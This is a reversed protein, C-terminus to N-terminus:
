YCTSMSTEASGPVGGDLSGLGGPGLCLGPRASDWHPLWPVHRRINARVRVPRVLLGPDQSGGGEPSLDEWWCETDQKPSIREDASLQGQKHCLRWGQCFHPDVRNSLNREERLVWLHFVHVRWPTARRHRGTSFVTHPERQNKCSKLAVSPETHPHMGWDENLTRVKIKHWLSLRRGRSLQLWEGPTPCGLRQFCQHILSPHHELQQEEWDEQLRIKM